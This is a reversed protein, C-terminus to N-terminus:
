VQMLQCGDSTQGVVPMSILFFPLLFVRIIRLASIRTM